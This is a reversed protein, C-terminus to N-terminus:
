INHFFLISLAFIFSILFAMHFSLCSILVLLIAIQKIISSCTALHAILSMYSSWKNCSPRCCSELLCSVMRVLTELYTILCLLWHVLTKVLLMLKHVCSNTLTFAHAYVIFGVHNKQINKKVHISYEFFTEHWMMLINKSMSYYQTVHCIWRM